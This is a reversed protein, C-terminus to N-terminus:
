LWPPLLPLEGSATRLRPAAGRGTFWRALDAAPGQVYAEEVNTEARDTARVRLDCSSPLEGYSPLDCAHIWLERCRLWHIVSAPVTRGQATVVEAKWRAADAIRDLAAVLYRGLAGATGSRTRQGPRSVDWM